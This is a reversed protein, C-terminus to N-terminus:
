VGTLRQTVETQPACACVNKPKRITKTYGTSKTLHLKFAVCAWSRSGVACKESNDDRPGGKFLIQFYCSYLIRICLIKERFFLTSITSLPNQTGVFSSSEKTGNALSRRTSADPARQAITNRTVNVM